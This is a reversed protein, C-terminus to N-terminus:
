HRKIEADERLTEILGQIAAQARLRQAMQASGETGETDGARVSTLEIVAVGDETPTQGFSSGQGPHPLRFAQRLVADPASDGNRTADEVSQWDLSVSDGNDLKKILEEARAELAERTKAEKVATRVQNKVEDLPLTTADRHDVVRVVARRQADLELVDSNYGNELVDESFVADMVGPEALMGQASKRSVWDSTHLTLGLEKAVSQLDEAAYSQDELAQVKKNFAESSNNLRVQQALQDRRAEFSPFDIDTVKILHLGDGGDVISSVEGENLSFAADDFADGFFGRKIVGLDGGDDASTADDSYEAAVSAFDKGEDLESQAEKIRAMAEERTREDGYDVMIHAVERPADQRQQAYADRLQKEDVDVDQAVKQQNLVVYAVKVQEPRQYQERHADYYARLDDQSVEVPAQLDKPSLVAYRFDRTQNQLAQLRNAESPLVFTSLALGQQLQQRKMDSRLERRFSLPTYGAQALRNTFLEQSFNGQSDQFEPRSVILQDVQADSLHMGGDNAYQDLLETTILRDLVDQRLEREQGPPVQGSRIARQVQLEVARKGISEGNVTAADNSGSTFVGVLSEAGFLAFTVIIAGVIMKAAWGQSGERIRQLM